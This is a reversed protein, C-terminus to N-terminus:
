SLKFSVTVTMVVPVAVGNLATPEYEWQRVATRAADALLPHGRLTKLEVVKGDPGITCELIVQGQVRAALAEPPYVPPVHRTKRPEEIGSGARVPTPPVREMAPAATPKSRAAPAATSPALGAERPPPPPPPPPPDVFAFDPPSTAPEPLRDDAGVLHPAARYVFLGVAVPVVTLLAFVNAAVAAWAVDRQARAGRVLALVALALGVLSGIGLGGLSFLGVLGLALATVGLGQGQGM